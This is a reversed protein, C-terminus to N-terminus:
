FPLFQVRSYLLASPHSLFCCWGAQPTYDPTIPLINYHSPSHHPPPIKIPLPSYFPTYDATCPKIPQVHSLGALVYEKELEELTLHTTIALGRHADWLAAKKPSWPPIHKPIRAQPRSVFRRAYSTHTSRTRRQGDDLMAMSCIRGM